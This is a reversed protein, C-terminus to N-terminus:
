GIIRIIYETKCYLVVNMPGNRSLNDKGPISQDIRAETCSFLCLVVIGLRIWEYDLSSM